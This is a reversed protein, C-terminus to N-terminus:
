FNIHAKARLESLTTLGSALTMYSEMKVTSFGDMMPETLGQLMLKNTPHLHRNINLSTHYSTHHSM